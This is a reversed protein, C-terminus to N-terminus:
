VSYIKPALHYIYGLIFPILLTVMLLIILEKTVIKKTKCYNQICFYIWLAPYMFPVFMFYASFLGFNLLAMLIVFYKSNFIDNNHYYVLDIIACIILLGM